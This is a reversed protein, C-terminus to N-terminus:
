NRRVANVQRLDDIIEFAIQDGGRETLAAAALGFRRFKESQAYLSQIHLEFAIGILLARELLVPMVNYLRCDAGPRRLIGCSIVTLCAPKTQGSRRGAASQRRYNSWLRHRAMLAM